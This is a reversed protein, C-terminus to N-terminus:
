RGRATSQEGGTLPWFGMKWQKGRLVIDGKVVPDVMQESM